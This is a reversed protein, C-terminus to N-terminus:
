GEQEERLFGILREIQADTLSGGFSPMQGRGRTITTVLYEDSRDVAGSGAGLAPAGTVGGGELQSGHCRACGAGAYVEAGTADAEIGSCAAVLLVSGLAVHRLRVPLLNSLPRAIGTAAPGVAGSVDRGTATSV